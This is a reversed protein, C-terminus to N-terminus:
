RFKQPVNIRRGRSTTKPPPEPLPSPVVDRSAPGVVGRRPARKQVASRSTIRKGKNPTDRSKQSTAANSQQKKLERAAAREAAKAKREEDARKKAAARLAKAELAMKKKYLIAAAKLDRDRTKQLQLEEADRQKLRERVRAERLKRPSWLVAGGHYEKRQQLDLTKSKTAHRQKTTIAARLGENEHHLLENQVQLSHFAAALRKSKANARDTVAADLIKRIDNWSDGDGLEGLEADEDQGSTTANFRKLIVEADMPWVGTAEFSKLILEPRMTTSWASWFLPFFDRKKLALLGQSQQLHRNLEHTYNNSLPSFLVVDLPQLTHTSHPPFVALLIKKTHCYEIFERTLHSGHGDVILLRWGRTTKPTTHREFVQELWALGLDNNSWGSPSNGIFVDHQGAEIGEVWSSQIGSKGEYVLAPPLASGDACVCAILTIWERNGDQIAATRLKAEWIAKSFVRKTRKTLGIAFGKEDMNYTNREEIDYELMKGHLLDFYLKYKYESDAEHRVRDLGASWKTTLDVHQRHLFRTVWADSAEWKGVASAFNRVMERTPPLGRETCKEIYVVLESEQQPSLLQQEEAKAAVSNSAGRHRRSLTTRDVGFQQAVARYSFSAGPERSEIANIAANIADM